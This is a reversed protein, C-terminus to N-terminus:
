RGWGFSIDKAFFSGGALPLTCHPRLIDSDPFRPSLVRFMKWSFTGVMDIQIFNLQNSIRSRKKTNRKLTSPFIVTRCDQELETHIHNCSSFGFLSRDEKWAGFSIPHSNSFFICHAEQFLNKTISEFFKRTKIMVVFKGKLVADNVCSVTPVQIM